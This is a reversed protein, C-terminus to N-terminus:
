LLFQDHTPPVTRKTTKLKVRANLNIKSLIKTRIDNYQSSRLGSVFILCKFQDETLDKLKFQECARNVHGAYAIFDDTSSKVLQLCKSRTYFLSTKRGFIDTLMKITDEFKIDRPHQPLIYNVYRSHASTSIKRLLLRVRAADDLSQGDVLFLDEYRAYWTEFVLDNEPDYTFETINRALKDLLSETKDESSEKKVLKETLQQILVTQEALFKQLDEM